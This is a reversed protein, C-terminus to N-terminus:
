HRHSGAPDIEGPDAPPPDGSPDPEHHEGADADAHAPETAVSVVAARRTRRRRHLMPLGHHRRAAMWAVPGLVLALLIAAATLETSAGLLKLGSALLVLALARRVLGGPARSSVSAGLLVGPISGILLSVTVDLRFDGFLLHGLAAAAVLPVAQVLDTGVLQSAQLRPYLLLLAIIILSGSGVSTMGVILGGCVGVLVTPVPRVSVRTGAPAVVVSAPDRQRRVRNVMTTYAKAILGAAALLLALGLATRVADQLEQGEGLARLLLVGGFASPVSGLVLYGVLRLDVTGQRLHVAGGFPKMIASVVLDSSVAALPNVGFFFVLMPTMLAGGGMGTLGVVFGVVLGGFALALDM